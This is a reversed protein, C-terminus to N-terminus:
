GRASATPWGYGAADEPKWGRMAIVECEVDLALTDRVM